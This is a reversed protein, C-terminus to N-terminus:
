DKKTLNKMKQTKTYKEFITSKLNKKDTIEAKNGSVKKLQLTLEDKYNRKLNLPKLSSVIELLNKKMLIHYLAM